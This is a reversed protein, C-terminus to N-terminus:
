LRKALNQIRHLKSAIPRCVLQDRRYSRLSLGGIVPIAFCKRCCHPVTNKAMVKGKMSNITIHQIM